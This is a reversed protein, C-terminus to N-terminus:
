SVRNGNPYRCLCHFPEFLVDGGNRGAEDVRNEVLIMGAKRKEKAVMKWDVTENM